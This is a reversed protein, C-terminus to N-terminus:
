TALGLDKLIAEIRATDEARPVERLRRRHAPDADLRAEQVEEAWAASNAMTEVLKVM